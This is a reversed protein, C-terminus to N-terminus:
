FECLQISQLFKKVDGKKLIKSKMMVSVAAVTLTLARAISTVIRFRKILREM